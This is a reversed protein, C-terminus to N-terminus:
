DFLRGEASKRIHCCPHFRFGEWSGNAGSARLHRHLRPCNSALRRRSCPNNSFAPIPIDHICPFLRPGGLPTHIRVRIHPALALRFRPCGFDKVGRIISKSHCVFIYLTYLHSISTEWRQKGFRNSQFSLAFTVDRSKPNKQNLFLCRSMSITVFLWFRKKLLGM